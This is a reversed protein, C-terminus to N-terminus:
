TKGFLSKFFGVKEPSVALDVTTVKVGTHNVTQTKPPEVTFASVFLPPAVTEIKSVTPKEVKVVSGAEIFPVFTPFDKPLVEFVQGKSLVCNISGLMLSINSLAKLRM